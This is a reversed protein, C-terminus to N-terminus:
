QGVFLQTYYHSGDSRVHIGVGVRSFRPGLINSRHGPSTMLNNHAASVIGSSNIALNEAAAGYRIGYSRLLNTFSGYTPSNHSFYNNNVMDRSKARAATTLQSCVQLAPLGANRRAENILSVMQQEKQAATGAPSTRVPTPPPPPELGPKEIKGPDIVLESDFSYIMKNVDFREPEETGLDYIRVAVSFSSQELADGDFLLNCALLLLLFGFFLSICLWKKITM